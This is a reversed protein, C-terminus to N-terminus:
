ARKRERAEIVHKAWGWPHKYGRAQGIKVLEDLTQARREEQRRWWQIAARDIEVLNGDEYFPVETEVKFEYGCVPCAVAPNRIPSDHWDTGDTANHPIRDENSM